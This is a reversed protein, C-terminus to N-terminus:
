LLEELITEQLLRDALQSSSVAFAHSALQQKIEAVFSHRVEPAHTVALRIEEQLEGREPNRLDPDLRERAPRHRDLGEGTGMEVRHAELAEKLMEIGVM